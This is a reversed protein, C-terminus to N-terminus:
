LFLHDKALHAEEHAAVSVIDDSTFNDLLEGTFAISHSIRLYGFSLANAIGSGPLNWRYFMVPLDRILRPLLDSSIRKMGLLPPLFLPILLLVAGNLAAFALGPAWPSHIGWWPLGTAMLRLIFFAVLPAAIPLARLLHMRFVTSLFRRFSWRVNRVECDLHHVPILSIAYSILWYVVACPIDHGIGLRRPLGLSLVLLGGATALFAALPSRRFASYPAIRDQGAPFRSLWIRREREMMAAPIVLLVLWLVSALLWTSEPGGPTKSGTPINLRQQLTQAAGMDIATLRGIAAFAASANNARFELTAELMALDAQMATPLPVPDHALRRIITLAAQDHGHVALLWARYSEVADRRRQMDPEREIKELSNLLARLGSADLRGGNMMGVLDDHVNAPRSNQLLSSIQATTPFGAPPTTGGWGGVIILLALVPTLILLANRM